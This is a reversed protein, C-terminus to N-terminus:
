LRGYRQNMPKAMSSSTRSWEPDSRGHTVAVPLSGFISIPAPAQHAHQRRAHRCPHGRWNDDDIQPHHVAVCDARRSWRSAGGVCSCSGTMTTVMAM